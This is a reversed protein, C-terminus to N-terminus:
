AHPESRLKLYYLTTITAFYAGTPIMALGFFGIGISNIAITASRGPDSPIFPISLLTFAIFAAVVTVLAVPVVTLIYCGFRLLSRHQLNWSKRIAAGIPENDLLLLHFVFGLKLLVFVSALPAIVTIAGTVGVVFAVYLIAGVAMIAGLRTFPMDLADSLKIARGEVIARTVAISGGIGVLTFLAYIWSWAFLCALLANPFENALATPKDVSVGPFVRGLLFAWSAGAVVALPAQTVLM